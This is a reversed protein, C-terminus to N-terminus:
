ISRRQSSIDERAIACVERVRLREVTEDEPKRAGFRALKVGDLLLPERGAVREAYYRPPKLLDGRIVCNDRPFVESAYKDIWGAGIGPNRSMTGYEPVRDGYKAKSWSGTM